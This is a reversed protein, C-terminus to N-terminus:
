KILIIASPFSLPNYICVIHPATDYLNEGMIKSITFWNPTHSNEITLGYSTHSRLITTLVDPQRGSLLLEIRRSTAM